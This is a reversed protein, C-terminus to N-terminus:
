EREKKEGNVRQLGKVSSPQSPQSRRSIRRSSRKEQPHIESAALKKHTHKDKYSDGRKIFLAGDMWKM